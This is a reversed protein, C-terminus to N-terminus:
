ICCLAEFTEEGGVERNALKISVPSQCTALRVERPLVFAPSPGTVAVGTSPPGFCIEMWCCNWSTVSSSSSSTLKFTGSRVRETASKGYSVWSPGAIVRCRRSDRM